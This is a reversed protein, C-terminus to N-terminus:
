AVRKVFARPSPTITHTHTIHHHTSTHIHHNSGCSDCRAGTERFRASDLWVKQLYQPTLLIKNSVITSRIKIPDQNRKRNCLDLDGGDPGVVVDFHVRRVGADVVVGDDPLHEFLHTHTHTHTHTIRVRHARVCTCLQNVHPPQIHM